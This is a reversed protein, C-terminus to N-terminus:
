HGKALQPVHYKKQAEYPLIVRDKPLAILNSKPRFEDANAAFYHRTDTVSETIHQCRISTDLYVKFGQKRAEICFHVDHSITGHTFENDREEHKYGNMFTPIDSNWDELVHRAISTFGLGVVDCEWLAEKELMEKVSVANPHGYRGTDGPEAIMCNIQHPPAHQFYVSGVIDDTHFAHKVLAEKPAVMDTEVVVLRKWEPISLLDQVAHRMAQDVYPSQMVLFDVPEPHLAVLGLINTLFRTSVNVYAPILVVIRQLEDGGLGISPEESSTM